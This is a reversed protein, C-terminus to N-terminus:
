RFLSLISSEEPLQVEKSVTGDTSITAKHVTLDEGSEQITLQVDNINKDQKLVLVFFGGAGAGCLSLGTCLPRLMSLLKTIHPPESASAM